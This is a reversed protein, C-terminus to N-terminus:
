LTGQQAWKVLAKGVRLATHKEFVYVAYTEYDDTFGLLLYDGGLKNLVIVFDSEGPYDLDATQDFEVQGRKLLSYAELEEMPLLDEHSLDLGEEQWMQEFRAAKTPKKM